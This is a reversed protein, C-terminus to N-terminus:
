KGDEMLSEDWDSDVPAAHRTAVQEWYDTGAVEDTWGTGTGQWSWGHETM